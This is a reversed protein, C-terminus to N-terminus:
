LQLSSKHQISEFLAERKLRILTARNLVALLLQDNSDRARGVPKLLDPLAPFHGHDM